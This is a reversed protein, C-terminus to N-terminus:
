TKESIEVFATQVKGSAAKLSIAHGGAGRELILTEEEQLRAEGAGEDWSVAVPGGGLPLVLLIQADSEANLAESSVELFGVRGATTARRYILNLDRLAAGLLRGEIKWEGPFTVPKFPERLELDGEEGADILIGGGSIVSLSRQYGPFSSFPGDQGVEAISLRWDFGGSDLGAGEPAIAIETTKGGGNRWPTTKYDVATLHRARSAKEPSEQPM